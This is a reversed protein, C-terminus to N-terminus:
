SNEIIFMFLDNTNLDGGQLLNEFEKDPQSAYIVIEKGNNFIYKHVIKEVEINSGYIGIQVIMHGSKMNRDFDDYTRLIENRGVGSDMAMRIVALSFDIMESNWEGRLKQINEQTVGNKALFYVPGRWTKPRALEIIAFVKEDPVSAKWQLSATHNSRLICNEVSDYCMGPFVGRAVAEIIEAEIPNNSYSYSVGVFMFVFMIVFMVNKFM